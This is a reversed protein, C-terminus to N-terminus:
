VHNLVLKPLHQLHPILHTHPHRELEHLTHSGNTLGIVLASGAATGEQLDAPTDGVKAVAQVSKIGTRQMAKYLLDPHPRGQAVEDSAATSDLLGSDLWGLRELIADVIVRSFGTDLAICVGAEKLETFADMTHPM